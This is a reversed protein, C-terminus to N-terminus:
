KDAIVARCYMQVTYCVIGQLALLTFLLVLIKRTSRKSERYTFGAKHYTDRM